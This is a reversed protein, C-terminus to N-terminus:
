RLGCGKQRPFLFDPPQLMHVRGAERLQFSAAIPSMWSIASGMFVLSKRLRYVHVQNRRDKQEAVAPCNVAWCPHNFVRATAGAPSRFLAASGILMAILLVVVIEGSGVGFFGVVLVTLNYADTKM